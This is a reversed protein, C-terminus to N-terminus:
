LEVYKDTFLLYRTLAVFADVVEIIAGVKAYVARYEDWKDLAEKSAM